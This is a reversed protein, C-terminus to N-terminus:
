EIPWRGQKILSERVETETVNYGQDTLGVLIESVNMDAVFGALTFVDALQDWAFRVVPMPRLHPDPVGQRSLSEIVEAKTAGYGRMILKTAIEFASDGALNAALAFKDAENDWERYHFGVSSTFTVSQAEATTLRPPPTNNATPM